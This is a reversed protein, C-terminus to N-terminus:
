KLVRGLIHFGIIEAIILGFLYLISPEWDGAISGLSGLGQGLNATGQMSVGMGSGSGGGQFDMGRTYGLGQQPYASRGQFAM